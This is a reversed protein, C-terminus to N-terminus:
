FYYALGIQWANFRGRSKKEKSLAETVQDWAADGTKGCAINYNASLQLHKLITVGAGVNVSFNSNKLNWTGKTGDLEVDKDGVNFSFQPGAFLFINALSSLGWGYRLNIPVAIAQQKVSSGTEVDGVKIKAERQDYLASADIGLGVLPLQIKVTPGIFFGTRNSADFVENSFSMSTVNVGGKLGFKIQANAPMAMMMFALLALSFIKKM